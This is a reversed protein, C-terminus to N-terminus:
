KLKYYHYNTPKPKVEGDNTIKKKIMSLFSSFLSLQEKFYGLFLIPLISKPTLKIKM